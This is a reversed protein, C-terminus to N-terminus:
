AEGRFIVAPKVRALLRLPFAGAVAIMEILAVTLPVVEWRPTAAVGFVRKGVWASLALGVFSGFLGGALGLTGAEVFFLKMIRSVPGGLMKMLGVDRARELALTAMTTMVCLVTLLLVVAVIGLLLDHIKAYLLAEAETFQRVPCVTAGPLNASLGAVFRGVAAAAGPVSIQVLSARGPLGALGQAAALPVLLQDDEPGGTSLTAEVTCSEQRDGASLQVVDGPGVGLEQVAKAGAFCPEVSEPAGGRSRAEQVKGSLWGTMKWGPAVEPLDALRTGAVVLVTPSLVSAVPDSTDPRGRSIVPKAKAILYLFPVAAVRQGEWELPIHSLVSVDLLNEAPTIARSQERASVIVNAGFARFERRLKRGADLQLNLLATTIAGGSALALLVVALRGRSARLLRREMRWFM